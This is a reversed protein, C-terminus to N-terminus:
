ATFPQGTRGTCGSCGAEAALPILPTAPCVNGGNCDCKNITVFDLRQELGWIEIPQGVTNTAPVGFPDQPFQALGTCCTTSLANISTGTWRDFNNFIYGCPAGSFPTLWGGDLTGGDRTLSFRARIWFNATGWGGTFVFPGFVYPDGCSGVAPYPYSFAACKNTGGIPAFSQSVTTDLSRSGSGTASDFFISMRVRM